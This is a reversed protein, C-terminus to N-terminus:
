STIYRNVATANGTEGTCYPPFDYHLFFMDTREPGGAV